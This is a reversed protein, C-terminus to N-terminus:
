IGVPPDVPWTLIVQLSGVLWHWGTTSVLLSGMEEEWLSALYAREQLGHQEHGSSLVAYLM